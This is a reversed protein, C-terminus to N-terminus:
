GSAAGVSVPSVMSRVRTRLDNCLPLATEARSGSQQTSPSPTTTEEVKMIARGWPNNMEYDIDVNIVQDGQRIPIEFQDDSVTPNLRITAPKIQYTITRRNKVDPSVPDSYESYSVPLYIKGGGINMERVDEVRGGGTQLIGAKADSVEASFRMPLYGDEKSYWMEFRGHIISKRDPTEQEREIQVVVFEKGDLQERRVAEIKGDSPQLHDLRMSIGGAVMDWPSPTGLKLRENGTKGTQVLRPSGAENEQATRSESGNQVFTFNLGTNLQERGYVRGADMVFRGSKRVPQETGDELQLEYEFEIGRISEKNARNRASIIAVMQLEDPTLETDARSLYPPLLLMVILILLFRRM